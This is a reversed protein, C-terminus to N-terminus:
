AEVDPFEVLNIISIFSQISKASFSANLNLDLIAGTVKQTKFWARLDSFNRDRIFL